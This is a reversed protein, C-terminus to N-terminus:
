KALFSKLAQSLAGALKPAPLEGSKKLYKMFKMADDYPGLESVSPCNDFYRELLQNLKEEEPFITLIDPYARKITRIRKRRLAKFAQGVREQDLGLSSPLHSCDALLARVLADQEQALASLDPKAIAIPELGIEIQRADAAAFSAPVRCSQRLQDLELSLEIDSAFNDDRELMVMPIPVLAALKKLVRLSEEKLPHCHTDHYLGQKFTGGAVHVYRLRDLPLARLYDDESFHHNFSNAFLNSVDLLLGSDTSELVQRLFEPETMTNQRESWDFTTAINELVLPVSLGNRAHEINRKLLALMKHNRQVPLLHGTELGGGRVFAIHDSVFPADFYRALADLHKLQAATPPQVSGLSLTTSHPIVMLGQRCLRKLAAPIHSPQPFDEALIEVFGLDQRREVFLALESRYGLGLKTEFSAVAVVVAEAAAVAAAVVAAVAAAAAVVAVM